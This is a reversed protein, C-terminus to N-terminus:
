AAQQAPAYAALAADYGAQYGNRYAEGKTTAAAVLRALLAARAAPNARRATRPRGERRMRGAGVRYGVWFGRAAAQAVSATQLFTRLREVYHRRQAARSNATIRQWAGPHQQWYAAKACGKTCYDRRRWRQRRTLPGGCLAYACTTRAHSLPGHTMVM